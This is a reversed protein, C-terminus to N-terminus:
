QGGNSQEPGNHPMNNMITREDVGYTVTLLILLYDYQDKLVQAVGTHLANKRREEELAAELGQIVRLKAQVDREKLACVETKERRVEECKKCPGEPVEVEASM